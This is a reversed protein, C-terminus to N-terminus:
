SPISQSTLIIVNSYFVAEPQVWSRFSCLGCRWWRTDSGKPNLMAFVMNVKRTFMNCNRKWELEGLFFIEAFPLHESTTVSSKRDDWEM